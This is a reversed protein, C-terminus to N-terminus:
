AIVAIKLYRTGARQARLRAPASRLACGGQQPQQRACARFLSSRAPAHLNRQHRAFHGEFHWTLPFRPSSHCRM